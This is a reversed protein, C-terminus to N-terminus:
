SAKKDETVANERLWEKILYHRRELMKRDEETLKGALTDFFYGPYGGIKTIQVLDQKFCGDNKMILHAAMRYCLVKRRCGASVEAKSLIDTFLEIAQNYQGDFFHVVALELKSPLTSIKWERREAQTEDFPCFPVAMVDRRSGDSAEPPSSLFADHHANYFTYRAGELVQLHWTRAADPPGRTDPKYNLLVRKMGFEGTDRNAPFDSVYLCEEAYINVIYFESDGTPAPILRWLEKNNDATWTGKWCFASLNKSDYAYTKGAVYLSDDGIVSTITVPSGCALARDVFGLSRAFTIEAEMLNKGATHQMSKRLVLAVACANWLESQMLMIECARICQYRPLGQVFKLMARQSVRPVAYQMDFLNELTNMDVASVHLFVSLARQLGRDGEMLLDLMKQAGNSAMKVATTIVFSHLDFSLITLNFLLHFARSTSPHGVVLHSIHYSQIVAINLSHFSHLMAQYKMGTSRTWLGLPGWKVFNRVEGADSTTLTKTLPTADPGVRCLMVAGGMNNRGREDSKPDAICVSPVGIPTDTVVSTAIFRKILDIINDDQIRFKSEWVRAVAPQKFRVSRFQSRSRSLLVVNYIEEDDVEWLFIFLLQQIVRYCDSKKGIRNKLSKKVTM